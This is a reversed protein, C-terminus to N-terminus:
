PQQGTLRRVNEEVLAAFRGHHTKDDPFNDFVVVPVRLRAALADALQRGEPANAIVLKVGDAAALVGNLEGVSTTDAGTFTGAVALGLFRCFDAQHASTLVRAGRWGAQAVADHVAAELQALEGRVASLRAAAAATELLGQGVLGAAVQECLAAYSAPECLGGSVHTPVVQLNAAVAKLREDLGSQFDFRLLLRCARVATLQAPQLDFHGPCMGPEALRVIEVHEGLLDHLAAELHSNSVAIARASRPAAPARECGSAGWAGITAAGAIAIRLARRRTTWHAPTTTPTRSGIIVKGIKLLV